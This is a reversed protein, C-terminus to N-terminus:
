VSDVLSRPIGIPGLTVGSSCVFSHMWFNSVLVSLHILRPLVISPLVTMICDINCDTIVYRSMAIGSAGVSITLIWLIRVLDM